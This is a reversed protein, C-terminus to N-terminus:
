LDFLKKLEAMTDQPGTVSHGITRPDSYIEYDNGGEFTKDGFFHITTYDVAEGAPRKAEAAVHQLCYTKDWGTPFVDFSIQGGISFTLGLHGFRERLKEVMAKRVGHVKDYAEYDNREQVSANRGIPSINVMGNRFEMFTGRKVPIELDAIYHLVFRVLEKYQEEGIYKIFSNSPLPVGLRYATLGNEAFSFDFLSTVNVSASGLQEQQKVLDSGGVFGIAVKQRLRSLLSLMEPSAGLRAPTLTGDVDFLCITNKIEREALPPYSAAMATTPHPSPQLAMRHIVTGITWIGILGWGIRRSMVWQNAPVAVLLVVLTVLVMVASVMLTGGVRIRYPKYALPADPHDGRRTRASRIGMWAGGMGVGLLINLMPGGFCAALAMVPFGLRAVTVDAVLDGLSNGVAFVTLGLIAESIDLIVGLAKLVGVVEGAITSIWAVSIVFGLFCLLFHYRPKPGTAETTTLLAALLTLSIILSYLIMQLLTHAPQAMDELTNAWVILVVFLPGTFLQVAILWRNWSAPADATTATTARDSDAPLAAAAAAVTPKPLQPAPTIIPSYQGDSAPPAHSSLSLTSPSVSLPSRSIVSRTRRRYAQWETEPRVVGGGGVEEISIAPAVSGHPATDLPDVSEDDDDDDEQGSEVVPLTAVLLFVSPVSLLSLMRDLVTKERWGQLTPFFTALLVHPAPLLRYPWWSVPRPQEQMDDVFGPLSHHRPRPEGPAPFSFTIQNQYPTAVAPSESLRPFPSLSRSSDGTSRRSLTPIQLRLFRHDEHSGPDSAGHDAEAGPGLPPALRGDITRAASSTRTQPLSSASSEESQPPSAHELSLPPVVGFSSARERSEAPVQAPMTKTRPRGRFHDDFSGPIVPQQLSHARGHLPGLHMNREKQLSSLVSRFELAGVLSPRIPAVTTNSRAWRPRNVRMSSAMEAAVHIDRDEDEESSPVREIEIRPGRELVSIDCPQATAAARSRGGVPAAEDEDPEDHYPELEETARGSAGYFHTRSDAVQQRQRRRRTTLWHWGVVVVVYFLYFGIMTFCEWLYLEGDALFVMTFAIAVIFFLIDRVFTRKSVKFERVLAMSGAVVATIFGAAGILEGVAMSGSNSGMAAFTSFVDPSGNGFALFTVGALSESLGLVKAITSLNVSFFDSAAIGITTFLLGLWFALLAFAFPRAPGSTCYYFTLYHLLGAEDDECNALVFACQDDAHHVNHCDADDLELTRPSLYGRRRRGDLAQSSPATQLLAFAAVLVVLLVGAVVPRSSFRRRSRPSLPM